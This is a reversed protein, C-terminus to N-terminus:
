LIGNDKVLLRAKGQANKDIAALSSHDGEVDEYLASKYFAKIGTTIIM